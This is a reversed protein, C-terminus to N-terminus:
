PTFSPSVIFVTRRTIASGCRQCVPEEPPAHLPNLQDPKIVESFNTGPIGDAIQNAIQAFAMFDTKSVVVHQHDRLFNNRFCFSSQDRKVAYLRRGACHFESTFQAFLWLKDFNYQTFAASDNPAA